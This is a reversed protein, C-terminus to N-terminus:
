AHKDPDYAQYAAALATVAKRLAPDAIKLQRLPLVQARAYGVSDADPGPRRVACRRGSHLGAAQRYRGTRDILLFLFWLAALSATALLVALALLAATRAPPRM